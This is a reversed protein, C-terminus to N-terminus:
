AYDVLLPKAAEHRTAWCWGVASGSVSAFIRDAFNDALYASLYCRACAAVGRKNQKKKTLEYAVLSATARQVYLAVHARSCVASGTKKLIEGALKGHLIDIRRDPGINVLQPLWRTNGAYTKLEAYLGKTLDDSLDLKAIFSPEIGLNCFHAADINQFATAPRDVV